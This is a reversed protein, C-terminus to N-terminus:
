CLKVKIMHDQVCSPETSGLMSLLEDTSIFYFRCVMLSLNLKPFNNCIRHYLRPFIQRKSELYENLSKQCNELGLSLKQFEELRGLVMCIDIVKSNKVCDNM